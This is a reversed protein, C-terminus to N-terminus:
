FSRSTIHGEPGKERSESYKYHKENKTQRSVKNRGSFEGSNKEM